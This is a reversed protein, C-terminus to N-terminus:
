ATGGAPLALTGDATLLGAALAEAVLDVADASPRVQLTPRGLKLEMGDPVLLESTEPDVWGGDKKCAATLASLFSARVTPRHEVEDPFHELCWATLADADTVRWSESPRSLGVKGLCRDREGRRAAARDEDTLYGPLSVGVDLLGVTEDRANGDAEAVRAALVKLVLLRLVLEERSPGGAVLPTGLCQQCDDLLTEATHGCQEGVEATGSGDVAIAGPTTDAFARGIPGAQQLRDHSAALAARTRAAHPRTVRGSPSTCRAGEDSECDPCVVALVPDVEPAATATATTM